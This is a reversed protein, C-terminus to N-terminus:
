TNILGHTRLDTILAALTQATTALTAGSDFTGRSLLGTPANWGTQRSTLVQTAPLGINLTGTQTVTGLNEAYLASAGTSLSGGFNNGLLNVATISATTIDVGSGCQFDSAVCTLRAAFPAGTMVIGSGVTTTFLCGLFHLHSQAVSIATDSTATFSSNMFYFPQTNNATINLANGECYLGNLHYPAGSVSFSDIQLEASADQGLFWQSGRLAEVAGGGTGKHVHMGFGGNNFTSLETWEGNSNGAALESVVDFGNGGNLASFLNSLNWQGIVQIGANRNSEAVIYNAYSYGTWGLHLGVSHNYLHLDYLLARDCAPQQQDFLNGMNLGYGTAALATRRITLGIFVPKNIRQSQICDGNLATSTIFTDWSGDGIIGSGFVTASAGSNGTGPGRIARTIKYNGKPLYILGFTNWATEIATSDDTVGDGVAAPVCLKVNVAGQQLWFPDTLAGRSSFVSGMNSPAVALWNTAGRYLTNGRANGFAQDMLASLGTSQGQTVAGSANGWVEAPGLKGTVAM